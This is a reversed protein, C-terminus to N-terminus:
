YKRKVTLMEEIEEYTEKEFTLVLLDHHDNTSFKLTINDFRHNQFARLLSMEHSVIKEKGKM